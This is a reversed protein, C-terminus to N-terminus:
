PFNRFIPIKRQTPLISFAQFGERAKLAAHIGPEFGAPWSAAHYRPSLSATV